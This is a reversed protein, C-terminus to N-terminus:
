CLFDTSKGNKCRKRNTNKGPSHDPKLKTFIFATQSSREYGATETNDWM